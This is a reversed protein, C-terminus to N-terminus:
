SAAVRHDNPVRAVGGSELLRRLVPDDRLPGKAALQKAALGLTESSGLEVKEIDLGDARTPGQLLSLVVDCSRM